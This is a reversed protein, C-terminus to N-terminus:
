DALRRLEEIYGPLKAIVGAVLHPIDDARASFRQEVLPVPFVEDILLAPMTACFGVYYGYQGFYGRRVDSTDPSLGVTAMAAVYTEFLEREDTAVAAGNRGWSIASGIMCGADVGIPDLTLSAWDVAVTEDNGSFLNGVNCDGFCLSRPLRATRGNLREALSLFEELASLPVDRFADRVYRHERLERLRSVQRVAPTRSWRLLFSNTNAVFPLQLPAVAHRANWSGLHAAIDSLEELTFPPKQLGTLDELWLLTTGDTGESILFCRAPRFADGDAAFLHDRYVLIENAADVFTNARPAQQLDIVKIVCSWAELQGRADTAQGTVHLMGITRSDYHHASLPVVKPRGALVTDAVGLVASAV